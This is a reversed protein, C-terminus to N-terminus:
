YIKDQIMQAIAEVVKEKDERYTVGYWVSNTNIVKVDCLGKRMGDSIATPLFSEVKTLDDKNLEFFEDLYDALIKFFSPTFAFCNMSVITENDLVNFKDGLTYGIKDGKREINQCETLEKLYGNQVNCIGRSVTGNESITNELAYGIMAAHCVNDDKVEKLFSALKYFADRGYFDDANIVAFNEKVVDRASYIAHATGLPKTRSIPIEIGPKVDEFSQFVYSVPIKAEIRKGVTNRFLDYNEKKIILVVKTFGAKIADYISYDLIFEGNPGVPELQKLGGFRSGMGAAMIVLTM